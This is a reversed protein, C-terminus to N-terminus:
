IKKLVSLLYDMESLNNFFATSVRVCGLPLTGISKHASPACHLGARTAINRSALLSSIEDSPKGIINFPLVPVSKYPAPEPTYLVANNLRKLGNYLYKTLGLEKLYLNKTGHQKVFDLGASVAFIGAVNVTGSELREPMDEPQSPEISSTGTGGELVTYKLPRRCILVGIGMPAYLGKHPAVALYDINMKQMNIDIVGATQAADVAFPIGHSASMEGIKEVPMIQGTVNSAHTCLILKTNPRILREFNQVTVADDFSAQSVSVEVGRHVSLANLPRMVANHELSSVIVHDGRSLIGKLICNLSHTCNLTFAVNEAGDAGFFDALKQRASYIKLTAEMSTKYGSRGPNASYFKLADSAARIVQAPKVGSTAANDLYIM